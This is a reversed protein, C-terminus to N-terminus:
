KDGSGISRTITNSHVAFKARPGGQRLMDLHFRIADAPLLHVPTIAHTLACNTVHSSTQSGQTRLPHKGEASPFAFQGWPLSDLPFLGVASSEHAPAFGFAEKTETEQASTQGAPAQLIFPETSALAEAAQPTDPLKLEARYWM